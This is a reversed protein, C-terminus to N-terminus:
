QGHFRKIQLFCKGSSSINGSYAHHKNDYTMPERRDEVNFLTKWTNKLSQVLKLTLKGLLLWSSLFKMNSKQIKFIRTLTFLVYKINPWSKLM